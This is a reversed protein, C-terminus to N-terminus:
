IFPLPLCFIVSVSHFRRIYQYTRENRHLTMGTGDFAGQTLIEIHKFCSFSDVTQNTQQTLLAAIEM